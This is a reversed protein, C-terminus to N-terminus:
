QIVEVKDITYYLQAALEGGEYSSEDYISRPIDAEKLAGELFEEGLRELTTYSTSVCRPTASLSKFTKISLVYMTM